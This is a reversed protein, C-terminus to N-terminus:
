TSAGAIIHHNCEGLWEIIVGFGKNGLVVFCM